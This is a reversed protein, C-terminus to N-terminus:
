GEANKSKRYLFVFTIGVAFAFFYRIFTYPFLLTCLISIVITLVISVVMKSDRFIRSGIKKECCKRYPLYLLLALVIYCVLTTYAAAVYGYVRIFIANLVINLLAAGISSITIQVNYDYYFLVNILMIDIFEVFLSLVLPTMCYMASQYGNTGFIKVLEPSVLILGFSVLILLVVMKFSRIGISKYEKNRLKQMTWPSISNDFSQIFVSLGSSISNALGYIALKENGCLDSIFKQDSRQLIRLSLLYPLLPLSISAITKWLTIDVFRKNRKLIDYIIWIVVILQLVIKILVATQVKNLSKSVLLIGFIFNLVSQLVSILVVSKYALEYRRKAFWLDEVYLSWVDVIILVALSYPLGIIKKATSDAFAYGIIIVLFWLSSLFSILGLTGTTYRDREDYNQTLGKYYATGTANITCIVMLFPILSNYLTYLGYEQMSMVRIYIPILVIAIGKQIVKGIIYWLTAKNEKNFKRAISHFISTKISM